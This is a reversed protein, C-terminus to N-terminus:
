SKICTHVTLPPLSLAMRRQDLTASFAEWKVHDEPAFIEWGYLGIHVARPCSALFSALEVLSISKVPPAGWSHRVTFSMRMYPQSLLQIWAGSAIDCGWFCIETTNKQAVSLAVEQLIEATVQWWKLELKRIKGIFPRLGSLLATINCGPQPHTGMDGVVTLHLSNPQFLHSVLAAASEIARIRDPLPELDSGLLECHLRDCDLELGDPWPSIRSLDMLSPPENSGGMALRKWRCGETVLAPQHYKSCAHDKLSALKVEELSPLLLFHQLVCSPLHFRGLDLKRLKSPICASWDMDPPISGLGGNPLTLETIHQLERGLGVFLERIGKGQANLDKICLSHMRPCSTALASFISPIGRNYELGPWELIVHRVEKLRDSSMDLWRILRSPRLEALLFEENMNIVHDPTVDWDWSVEMCTVTAHRPFNRLIDSGHDEDDLRRVMLGHILSSGLLRMSRCTGMLSQFSERDGQKMLEYLVILQLESGLNDWTVADNTDADWTTRLRSTDM